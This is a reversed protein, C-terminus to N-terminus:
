EVSCGFNARKSTAVFMSNFQVYNIKILLQMVNERVGKMQLLYALLISLYIKNNHSLVAELNKTFCDTMLFGGTLLIM